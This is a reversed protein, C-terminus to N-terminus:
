NYTVYTSPMYSVSENFGLGILDKSSSLPPALTPSSTPLEYGLPFPYMHQHQQLPPTPNPSYYVPSVPSYPARSTTPTLAPVRLHLSPTSWATGGESSSSHSDPPTTPTHSSHGSSAVHDRIHPQPRPPQLVSPFQATSPMPGTSPMPPPANWGSYMWGSPEFTAPSQLVPAPPPQPAWPQADFNPVSSSRRHLPRFPQLYPVQYYPTEVM